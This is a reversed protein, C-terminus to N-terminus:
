SGTVWYFCNSLPEKESFKMVRVICTCQIPDIIMMIKTGCILGKSGLLSKYIKSPRIGSSKVQLLSVGAKPLLPNFVIEM